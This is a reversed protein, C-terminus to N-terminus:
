GFGKIGFYTCTPPICMFGGLFSGCTLFTLNIYVLQRLRGGSKGKKLKIQENRSSENYKKLNTKTNVNLTV